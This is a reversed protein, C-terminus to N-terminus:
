GCLDFQFEAVTDFLCFGHGLYFDLQKADDTDMYRALAIKKDPYQAKIEYGRQILGKILADAVQKQLFGEAFHLEFGIYHVFNPDKKMSIATFWETPMLLGCAIIRGDSTAACVMNEREFDGHCLVLIKLAEDLKGIQEIDESRYTRIEWSNM